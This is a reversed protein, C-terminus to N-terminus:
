LMKHGLGDIEPVEKTLPLNDHVVLTYEAVADKSFILEILPHGTDIMEEPVSTSM